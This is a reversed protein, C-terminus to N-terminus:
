SLDFGFADVLLYPQVMLCMYVHDFISFFIEMLQVKTGYICIQWLMGIVPLGENNNFAKTFVEYKKWGILRQIDVFFFSWPIGHFDIKALSFTIFAKAADIL